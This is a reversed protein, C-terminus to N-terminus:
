IDRVFIIFPRGGNESEFRDVEVFGAKQCLRQARKNFAAITVRLKQAPFTQRAFTVATALFQEGLGQGTLDPRMGMGMDLATQSYDGGPVQGDSGFSYYAALEGTEEDFVAYFQNAFFYAVAEAVDGEDDSALGMNYIDYPPEYRWGLIIRASDEDIPCITLQM